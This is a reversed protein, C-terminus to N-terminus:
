GRSSRYIRRPYKLNNGGCKKSSNKRKKQSAINVFRKRPIKPKFRWKNHLLRYVHVEHYRVGTREHIINMIEKAKWGSSNESLERRIEAFTEESVESPRSSRHKDKLGDLGLKDFRKLWKYAWWRSRHFEKEAVMAAIENNVRVRRVLLNLSRYQM